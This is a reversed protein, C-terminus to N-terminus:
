WLQTYATTGANWFRVLMDMQAWWEDGGFEVGYPHEEGFLLSAEAGGLDESLLRAYGFRMLESKAYIFTWKGMELHPRGEAFREDQARLIGASIFYTSAPEDWRGLGPETFAYYQGAGRAGLEGFYGYHYYCAYGALYNGFESDRLRVSEYLGFTFGTGKYDYQGIGGPGGRGFAMWPGWVPHTGVLGTARIIVDETTTRDYDPGGAPIYLLGLPDTRSIPQNQCYLYRHLSLPEEFKGFVPDRSTFRALNPDYQRARLYYQDIDADFYQGTFKFPNTITEEYDATYTHLEGFPGYIYRDKVSASTDILLRVSGLRDHLYFYRDATHDGDRQAIIRSNEYIYSKKINENEDLEMLIVPLDGASEVAFSAPDADKLAKM